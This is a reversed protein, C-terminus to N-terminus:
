SYHKAPKPTLGEKRTLSNSLGHEARGRFGTQGSIVM